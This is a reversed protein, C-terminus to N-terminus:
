TDGHKNTKEHKRLSKTSNVHTPLVLMLRSALSLGSSPSALQPSPSPSALELSPELLQPRDTSLRQVRPVILLSSALHPSPSPLVLQASPSAYLPYNVVLLSPGALWVTIAFYMPDTPLRQVRSVTLLRNALQPRPSALQPHSSALQPSSSVLQPTSITIYCPHNALLQPRDSVPQPRSATPQSQGAVPYM